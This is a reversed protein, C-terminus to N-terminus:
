GLKVNAARIYRNKAIRYYTKGKIRYVKGNSKVVSGRKLLKRSVRKGKKTYRYSAKRLRLNRQTSSPAVSPTNPTTNGSSPTTTNGNSPTIPKAPANDNVDLSGTKIYHDLAATYDATLQDVTSQDVGMGLAKSYRDSLASAIKSNERWNVDKTTIYVIGAYKNVIARLASIDAHSVDANNSDVPHFDSSALDTADSTSQVIDMGNDHDPDGIAQWEGVNVYTEAIKGGGFQINGDGPAGMLSLTLLFPSAPLSKDPTTLNGAYRAVKTGAPYIKGSPGKLAYKLTGYQIWNNYGAHSASASAIQTHTTIFTTSGLGTLASACLVIAIKQNLKM